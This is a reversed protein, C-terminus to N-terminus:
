CREMGVWLPQTGGIFDPAASTYAAIQWEPSAHSGSSPADLPNIAANMMFGVDDFVQFASYLGNEISLM